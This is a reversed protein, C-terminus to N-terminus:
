LHARCGYCPVCLKKGSHKDQIEEYGSVNSCNSFVKVQIVFTTIIFYIHLLPLTLLLFARLARKGIGMLFVYFCVCELRQPSFDKSKFHTHKKKSPTCLLLLLFQIIMHLLSIKKLRSTRVSRSVSTGLSRISPSKLSMSDVSALYTSTLSSESAPRYGSWIAPIVLRVARPTRRRSARFMVEGIIPIYRSCILFCM